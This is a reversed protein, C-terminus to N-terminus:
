PASNEQDLLALFHKGIPEPLLECIARANAEKLLFADQVAAPDLNPSFYGMAWTPMLLSEVLRQDIVQIDHHRPDQSIVAFLADVAATPGELLQLYQGDRFVLLGSIQKRQNNIQSKRLIDLIEHQDQAQHAQSRYIVQTFKM